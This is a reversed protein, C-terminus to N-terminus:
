QTYIFWVKLLCSQQEFPSGPTKLILSRKSNPSFLDSSFKYLHLIQPRLFSTDSSVLGQTCNDKGTVTVNIEPRHM